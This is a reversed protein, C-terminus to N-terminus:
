KVEDYSPISDVAGFRTVAIASAKTALNASEVLSFGELIGKVFYGTTDIANVKMAEVKVDENNTLVRSGDKGMTFLINTHPYKQKLVQLMKEYNEEGSLAASETENVVLWTVKEIPYNQISEDYPAANFFIKM